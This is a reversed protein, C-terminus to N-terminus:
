KHSPFTLIAQTENGIRALKIQGKLENETVTRVIQLGLNSSGEYTFGGPLGVGNDIVKV